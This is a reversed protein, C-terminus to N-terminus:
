FIAWNQFGQLKVCFPLDADSISEPTGPAFFFIPWKPTFNCPKLFHAMMKPWLHGNEKRVGSSEQCRTQCLDVIRPLIAPNGFFPSGKQAVKARFTAWKQFVGLEVRFPFFADSTINPCGQPFFSFHAVTSWFSALNKLFLEPSPLVSAFCRPVLRAANPAFVFHAVMPCIKVGM